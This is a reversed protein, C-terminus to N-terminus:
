RDDFVITRLCRRVADRSIVAPSLESASGIDPAAQIPRLLIL